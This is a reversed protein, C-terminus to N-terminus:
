GQHSILQRVKKMLRHVLRHLSPDYLSSVSSRLWRYLHAILEDAFPNRHRVVDVFWTHVVTCLIKLAARCANKDDALLRASPAVPM